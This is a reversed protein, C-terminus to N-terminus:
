IKSKCYYYLSAAGLLGASNAGLESLMFTMDSLDNKMGMIKTIRKKLKDLFWNGDTLVGGGFVYIKSNFAFEMNITAHAMLDVAIDVLEKCLADGKFYNEFIEYAPIFENKEIKETLPNEKHRYAIRKIEDSLGMGSVVSELNHLKDNNENPKFIWLGVEGAKNEAGRILHGDDVIGVAMGTGINVYTFDKCRKGIGWQLEALATANLDNDIYVPLDLQESLEKCLDFNEDNSFLKGRTYKQKRFDVFGRTGIGIGGINSKCDNENTFNIIEKYLNKSLKKLSTREVAFRKVILVKGNEDVLGMSIKTGGIDIGLAVKKEVLSM